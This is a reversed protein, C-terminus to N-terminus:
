QKGTHLHKNVLRDLAFALSIGFFNALLDFVDYVNTMVGFGNTLEFLSVIALAIFATIFKNTKWYKANFGVIFYVSFSVSFNGLYSKVFEIYPGNYNRKLVLLLVGCLVFIVNRLKENKLM